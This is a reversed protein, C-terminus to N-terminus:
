TQDIQGRYGLYKRVDPGTQSMQATQSCLGSILRDMKKSIPLPALLGQKQDNYAKSRRCTSCNTAYRRCDDKMSMWFYNEMMKAYMGRYGPHGQKPLNHHDSLLRLKLKDFNPIFLRTKYYLREHRVELDGMALRLGNSLIKDPLKKLNELKAKMVEPIM